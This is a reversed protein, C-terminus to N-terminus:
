VKCINEYLLENVLMEVSIVWKLRNEMCGKKKSKVEFCYDESFLNM